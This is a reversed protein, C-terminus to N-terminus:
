YAKAFIVQQPSAEGTFICKGAEPKGDVLPICRITVGLDQKIKAEIAPDGNWHALAFGGDSDTFFHYFEKENNIQVTNQRQFALARQFLNMQIEDLQQVVTQTFETRSLTIRDKYEKDRRGMFVTSNECEKMGIEIRIPIGKKVASWGKEGGTLERQDIEVQLPKGHYIIKKLEDAIQQCYNMIAPQQEEKHLIPLIIVHVPALKPPLVLGNDDSHTMILGGILRTSSGWSTTWVFEEKGEKSLFKINLAQSFNQGLFHSTAAQLAKKDQMMAELCYTIVAGPFRESATKEGKIVPIAMVDEVFRTYLELIMLTEQQAEESTAHATHGEQWYFESTRLFMRTRLEWRMVNVWQNILIPLDRYSQIWRSYAEGIIMESTPRIIYPEELPNAPVLKGDANKGLRTHTVVACEKAFGEIHEAEKEMYSMPILLPFCANKHGTAKLQADFIQQMNEWLAYGWPKMTMCGRVPSNEALEAAKIIQQYWEPYDEARTPSIATKTKVNASKM